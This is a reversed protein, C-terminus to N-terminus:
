KGVNIEGGQIYIQTPSEINNQTEYYDISVNIAFSIFTVIFTATLMKILNRHRDNKQVNLARNHIADNIFREAMTMALLKDAQEAQTEDISNLVTNNQIAISKIPFLQTKYGSYTKFFM